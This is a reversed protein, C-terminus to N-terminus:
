GTVADARSRGRVRIVTKLPVCAATDGADTLMGTRVCLGNPCPSSAFGVARDSVSIVIGNELEVTYAERVTTFDIELVTEGDVIVDAGSAEKKPILLLAAALLLLLATVLLDAPRLFRRPKHKM